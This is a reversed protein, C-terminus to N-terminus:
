KLKSVSKSIRLYLLMGQLAPTQLYVPRLHLSSPRSSRSLAHDQSWGWPVSTTTRQVFSPDRRRRSTGWGWPTEPHARHPAKAELIGVRAKKGQRDPDKWFM